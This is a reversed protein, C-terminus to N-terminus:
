FANQATKPHKKTEAKRKAFFLKAFSVLLATEFNRRFGNPAQGEWLIL